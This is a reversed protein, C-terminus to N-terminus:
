GDDVKYPNRRVWEDKNMIEKDLWMDITTCLERGFARVCWRVEKRILFVM